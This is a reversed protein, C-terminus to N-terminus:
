ELIIWREEMETGIKERQVREKRRRRRADRIEGEKGSEENSGM